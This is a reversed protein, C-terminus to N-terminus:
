HHEETTIKKGFPNMKNLDRASKQTFSYGNMDAFLLAGSFALSFGFCAPLSKRSMGVATGAAIAGAVTSKPGKKGDFFVTASIGEAIAYTAGVIAFLGANFKITHLTSSVMKTKQAATAPPGQWAAKLSGVFVGGLMGTAAAMLTGEVLGPEEGGM